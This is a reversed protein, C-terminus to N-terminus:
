MWPNIVQVDTHQFDQLNRTVLTYRGQLAAAAIISDIAAIPKGQKELRGALEGWALMIDVTIEVIRGQFRVLLDTELWESVQDRRKSSPLKEIGKRIEGITIVSLYVTDSDLQDIWEVVQPHPQRAVLESIVNTDLLYKM